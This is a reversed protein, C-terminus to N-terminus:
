EVNYTYAYLKVPCFISVDFKFMLNNSWCDGHNVVPNKGEYKIADLAMQPARETYVRLKAKIKEDEVLSQLRKISSMIFDCVQKNGLTICELANKLDCTLKKYEKPHHERYAASIGHFQGYSKMLLKVHIDDFTGDRPFMKYGSYQLNEMVLKEKGPDVSCCYFKAIKNFHIGPFGNQFNRLEKWITKYFHIENFYLVEM